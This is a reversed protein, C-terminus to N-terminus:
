QGGLAPIILQQGVRLYRDRLGPNHSHIQSESVGYRRSIASLTDGSRITHFYYQILELEPNELVSVIAQVHDLPVKLHYEPYPPTIGYNLERNANKLETNDIGAYEALLNLDVSRGVPIRTWQPDEPWVAEIGFQRPNSLIMSVALLRPVFNITENRFARLRSLEWYDADPHRQQANRVTGMGANYAALTLEWCGLRNYEDELKDLAGLTSKWFDRREDKWENIAMDYPGISNRMFQWLGSAGARSVANPVFASEIVPLYMIEIPMGRREVESRIFALYPESRRLINALSQRGGASTYQEIYQQTLAQDYGNLTLLLPMQSHQRNSFPNNTVLQRLPREIPEASFVTFIGSFLLFLIIKMTKIMNMMVPLQLM